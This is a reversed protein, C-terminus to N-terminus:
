KSLTSKCINIKSYQSYHGSQTLLLSARPVFGVAAASAEHERDATDWRVWQHTLSREYWIRRQPSPLCPQTTIACRTERTIKFYCSMFLVASDLLKIHQTPLLDLSAHNAAAARHPSPQPSLRRSECSCRTSILTFCQTKM